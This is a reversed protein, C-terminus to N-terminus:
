TLSNPILNIQYSKVQNIFYKHFLTIIITKYTKTILPNIVTINTTILFKCESIRIMWQGKYKLDILCNLQIFDYEKKRFIQKVDISFVIKM